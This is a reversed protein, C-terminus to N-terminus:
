LIQGRKVVGDQEVVAVSVKDGFVVVASKKVIVFIKNGEAVLLRM